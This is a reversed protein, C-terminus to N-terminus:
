VSTLALAVAAFALTGGALAIPWSASRALYAYALCFAAEAIAGALSGLSAATAFTTGREVALFFAGPGSTLPLGGLWGRVAHGWRRGALSAAAILAPTLVLKLVLM